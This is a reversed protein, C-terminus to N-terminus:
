NKCSCWQISRCTEHGECYGYYGSASQLELGATDINLVSSTTSYAKTCEGTKYPNQKYTQSPSNYPGYKHDANAVRM